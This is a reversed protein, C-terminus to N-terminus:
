FPFTFGIRPAFVTAGDIGGFRPDFTLAVGENLWFDLGPELLITFGTAAGSGIGIMAGLSLGARLDLSSSMRYKAYGKVLMPLLLYTPGFHFFTGSDLGAYVSWGGGLETVKMSASVAPGILATGGGAIIGAALTVDWRARRIASALSDSGRATSAVATPAGSRSEVRATAGPASFATTVILLTLPLLSRPFM